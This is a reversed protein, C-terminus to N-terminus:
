SCAHLWEMLLALSKNSLNVSSLNDNNGLATSIRNVQLFLGDTMMCIIHLRIEHSAHPPAFKSGGPILFGPKNKCNESHERGSNSKQKLSCTMPWSSRQIKWKKNFYPDIIQLRYTAEYFFFRKSSNLLPTIKFYHLVWSDHLNALMSRISTM